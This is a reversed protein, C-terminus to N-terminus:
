ADGFGEWLYWDGRRETEGISQCSDDVVACDGWLGCTELFGNMVECPDTKNFANYCVMNFACGIDTWACTREVENMTDLYLYRGWDETSLNQDRVVREVLHGRSCYPADGIWGWPQRFWQLKVSGVLHRVVEQVTDVVNGARRIVYAGASERIKDEPNERNYRKRVARTKRKKKQERDLKRMSRAMRSAARRRASGRAFVNVVDEGLDQLAAMTDLSDKDVVGFMTNVVASYYLGGEYEEGRKGQLMHRESKAKIADLASIPCQRGQTRPTRVISSDDALMGNLDNVWGWDVEREEGFRCLAHPPRVRTNCECPVRRFTVPFDKETEAWRGEADWCTAGYMAVRVSSAEVRAMVQMTTKFIFLTQLQFCSLGSM